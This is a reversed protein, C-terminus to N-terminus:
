KALSVKQVPIRFTYPKKEDLNIKVYIQRFEEGNKGEKRGQGKLTFTCRVVKEKCGPLCIKADPLSFPGTEENKNPIKKWPIENKLLMEKVESFAWDALREKEMQELQVLEYKIMQFPHRVLPVICLTVISFAILIELLLFNRKKVILIM